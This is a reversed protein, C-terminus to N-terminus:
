QREFVGIQISHAYGKECDENPYSEYTMSIYEGSPLGMLEREFHVVETPDPTNTGCEHSSNTQTWKTALAGAEITGNTVATCPDLAGIKFNSQTETYTNGTIKLTLSGGLSLAGKFRDSDDSKCAYDLYMNAMKYTGSIATDIGSGDWTEDSRKTLTRLITIKKSVGQALITTETTLTLTTGNVFAKMAMDDLTMASPPSKVDYCNGSVGASVIDTRIIVGNAASFKGSEYGTCRDYLMEGGFSSSYAKFENLTVGDARFRISARGSFVIQEQPYDQISFGTLDWTGLIETNSNVASGLSSSDSGGGSKGCSVSVVSVTVVGVMVASAVMWRM